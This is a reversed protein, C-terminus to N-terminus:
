FRRKRYVSYSAAGILVLGFALGTSLSEINIVVYNVITGVVKKVIPNKFVPFGSIGLYPDQFVTKLSTSNNFTFNFTIFAGGNAQAVTSNLSNQVGNMDYINNWWYFANVNGNGSGKNGAPVQVGKSNQNVKNTHDNAINGFYYGYAGNNRDSSTILQTMELNGPGQVPTQFTVSFTIELTSYQPFSYSTSEASSNVITMNPLSYSLEKMNIVVNASIVNHSVGSSQGGQAGLTSQQPPHSGNSSNRGGSINNGNRTSNGVQQGAPHFMVDSTYSYTGNNGSTFNWNGQNFSTTYSGNPTNLLLGMYSLNYSVGGSVNVTISPFTQAEVQPSQSQAAAAGSFLSILMVATVLAAPLLKM